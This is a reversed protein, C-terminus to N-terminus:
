QSKLHRDVIRLTKGERKLRDRFRLIERRSSLYTLIRQM